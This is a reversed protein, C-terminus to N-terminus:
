LTESGGPALWDGGARGQTKTRSQVKGLSGRSPGGHAGAWGGDGATLRDCSFNASEKDCVCACVGRGGVDVNWVDRFDTKTVSRLSVCLIRADSVKASAKQETRFQIALQQTQQMQRQYAGVDSLHM